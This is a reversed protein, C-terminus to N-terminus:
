ASNASAMELFKARRRSKLEGGPVRGFEDLAEALADGLSAIMAEPDRHAGGMPEPMVQDIIGFGMLDSATLKLATAAEEAREASRWLISACGEPSIVSYIAHELM